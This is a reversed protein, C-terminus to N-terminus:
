REDGHPLLITEINYRPRDKVEIYIKGIYEGIIGIGILVCGSTFWVSLMLSSWGSVAEGVWLAHIVYALVLADIFLFLIGLFFLCRIPKVSFSTIGDIAFNMMKSLPYKSEGAMRELRDYYVCTTNYGILPVIGRLFLNRERFRCLFELARKSMLRYDAHNYVSKVGMTHMLKYFALATTRKFFSDTSRQKRVGYVIDYGEGYKIVMDRIVQIDDQLDADISIAVDCLDKAVELGAMLANQHGVNGALNIGCVYRNEKCKSQILPWTQDKSGDNIFIILSHKTILEEEILNEIISTLQRATEDLVEEEKYCPVVLALTVMYLKKM